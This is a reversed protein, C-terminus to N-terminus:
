EWGLKKYRIEAAEIFLSRDIGDPQWYDNLFSIKLRQKSTKVSANFSYAQPTQATVNVEGLIKEGLRVQMRPWVDQASKGRAFVNIEVQGEFLMLDKWCSINKYLHGGAPGEWEEFQVEKVFGRGLSFIAVSKEVKKQRFFVKAQGLLSDDYLGEIRLDQGLKQSSNLHELSKKYNNMDLAKEGASFHYFAMGIRLCGVLCVLIFIGLIGIWFKKRSEFGLPIGHSGIFWLLLYIIYRISGEWSLDNLFLSKAGLLLGIAMLATVVIISDLKRHSKSGSNWSFFYAAFATLALGGLVGLFINRHVASIVNRQVSLAPDFQNAIFILVVALLGWHIADKKGDGVLFSLHKCYLYGLCITIVGLRIYEQCTLKFSYAAPFLLLAWLCVTIIGSFFKQTDAPSSM